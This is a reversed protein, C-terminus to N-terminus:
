QSSSPLSLEKRREKAPRTVKEVMIGNPTYVDISDTTLKVQNHGNSLAKIPRQPAIVAYRKTFQKPKELMSVAIITQANKKIMMPYLWM